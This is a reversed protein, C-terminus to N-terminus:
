REISQIVKEAAKRLARKVDDPYDDFSPYEGMDSYMWQDCLMERLVADIIVGPDSLKNEM